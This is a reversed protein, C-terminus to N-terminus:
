TMGLVESKVADLYVTRAPNTGVTIEWALHLNLSSNDPSRVPFVVMQKVDVVEGPSVSFQRTGSSDTFSLPRGSVYEAAQEATLNIKVNGLSRQLGPLSPICTSSFQLVRGDPAFGIRVEGFGNRLAYRLPKQQYFAQESITEGKSTQMLSLQQPGAGILVNTSEVFRRLSERADDESM